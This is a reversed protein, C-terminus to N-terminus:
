GLPNEKRAVAIVAMKGNAGCARGLQAIAGAVLDV